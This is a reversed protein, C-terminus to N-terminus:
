LYRRAPRRPTSPSTCGSTGTCTTRIHSKPTTSAKIFPPLHHLPGRHLLLPLLKSHLLRLLLLLLTPHAVVTRITVAVVSAESPPATSDRRATGATTAASHGRPHADARIPAACTDRIATTTARAAPPEGPLAVTLVANRGTTASAVAMAAPTPLRSLAPGTTVVRTPPNKVVAAPPQLTIGSLLTLM